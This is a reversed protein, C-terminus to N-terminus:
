QRFFGNGSDGTGVFFGAGPGEAKAPVIKMSKSAPQERDAEREIQKPAAQPLRLARVGFTFAIAGFAVAIAIWIIRGPASRRAITPQSLLGLPVETAM